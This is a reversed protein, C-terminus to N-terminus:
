EAAVQALTKNADVLDDLPYKNAGAEWLGRWQELVNDPYKRSKNQALHTSFGSTFFVEVAQRVAAASAAPFPANGQCIGRSGYVNPCPAHYLKSDTKPWEDKVAYVTYSSAQGIWVLGPMPVHWTEKEREVSVPWVKPEVFIGLREGGNARGWFLCKEPLPGSVLPINALAIAVAGPDLIYTERPRAEGDFRTAVIMSGYLDLRMKITDYDSEDFKFEPYVPLALDITDQNM